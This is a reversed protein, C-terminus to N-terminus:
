RVYEEDSGLRDIEFHFDVEHLVVDEPCSDTIGTM